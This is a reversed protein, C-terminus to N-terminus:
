KKTLEALKELYPSLYEEEDEKSPFGIKREDEIDWRLAEIQMEKLTQSKHEKWWAQMGAQTYWARKCYKSFYRHFVHLQGDAGQRSKCRRSAFLDVQDEIILFCVDGVSLSRLIATPISRSYGKDNLHEILVPFADKGLEILKGRAQEVKEQAKRDYDKPLGVFAELDPNPDKNPSRLQGILKEM